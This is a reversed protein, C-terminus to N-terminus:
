KSLRRLTHTQKTIKFEKQLSEICDYFITDSMQYSNRKSISESLSQLKKQTEQSCYIMTNYIASLVNMSYASNTRYEGYGSLLKDITKNILEIEQAKQKHKSEKYKIIFPLIISSLSMLTTLGLSVTTIIWETTM